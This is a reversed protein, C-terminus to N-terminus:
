LTSHNMINETAELSSLAGSTSGSKLKSISSDCYTSSASSSDTTTSESYLMAPGSNAVASRDIPYIGTRAYSNVITAMKVAGTWMTNFVATFSEKPVSSGMHSIKYKDVAKEWSTKLAGFFGVDLPQTIHSSHPLLCYLLIGNDKCFKSIEVIIRLPNERGDKDLIEKVTACLQERTRGYGIDAMHLAWDVLMQEEAPMLVTPPGRKSSAAKETVHDHLTSRPIGYQAAAKCYSM